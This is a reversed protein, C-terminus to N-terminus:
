QDLCPLIAISRAGDGNLDAFHIDAAKHGQRGKSAQVRKLWNPYFRAHENQGLSGTIPQGGNVAKFGPEQLCRRKKVLVTRGKSNKGVAPPDPGIPPHIWGKAHAAKIDAFWIAATKKYGTDTPHIGDVLYTQTISRMDSAMVRHDAKARKAFVKPVENNFLQIRRDYIADAAHVLQAVLITADPYIFLLEDILGRLRDPAGEITERPRALDFDNTGVHLLIVNPRYTALRIQPLIRLTELPTDLTVKM